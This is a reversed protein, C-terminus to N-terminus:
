ALLLYFRAIKQDPHEEIRDAEKQSLLLLIQRRTGLVTPEDIEISISVLDDVLKRSRAVIPAIGAAIGGGKLPLGFEILQKDLEEATWKTKVWFPEPKPV